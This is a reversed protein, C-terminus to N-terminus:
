PLQNSKKFKGNLLFQELQEIVETSVLMESHAVALEISDKL